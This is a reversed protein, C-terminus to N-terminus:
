FRTVAAGLADPQKLVIKEKEQKLFYKEMKENKRKKEKGNKETKRKRKEKGAKKRKNMKKLKEGRERTPQQNTTPQNNNTTTTHQQTNTPPLGEGLFFSKWLFRLKLARNQTLSSLLFFFSSLLFSSPLVRRCFCTGNWLRVCLVKKNLRTRPFGESRSTEGQQWLIVLLQGGVDYFNTKHVDQYRGKIKFLEKHFKCAQHRASEEQEENWETSRQDHPPASPQGGTKVM